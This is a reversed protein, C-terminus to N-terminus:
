EAREELEKEKAGKYDYPRVGCEFKHIMHMGCVGHAEFDFDPHFDVFGFGRSRKSHQDVLIAASLLVEKPSVGRATLWENWYEALGANNTEQGLGGVFVKNGGAEKDKRQGKRRRRKNTKSQKASDQAEEYSGAATTGDSFGGPTVHMERNAYGKNRMSYMNSAALGQLDMAPPPLEWGWGSRAVPMNYGYGLMPQHQVHQQM